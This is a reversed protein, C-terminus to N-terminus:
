ITKALTFSEMDFISITRGSVIYAFDGVYLGRSNWSWNIDSSIKARQYFGTDDAYGYVSFFNDEPFAIINRSSSILIAKHNYLAESSYSDLTLTHKETVDRPNSTDFMSLKLGQTRGTDVDAAMGLGFLRGDSYLHLYESFGPIKLESLITPNAPDSLDVAFLPDVQRFTVFYGIDGDFRASYIREDKAINEISGVINLNSDLIYLANATVAEDWVYNTFDHQPDTYVSWSSKDSTTVLRLYGNYEDMSFQSELYGPVSSSATIEAQGDSLSFRVIGTKSESTYDVVSYADETYPESETESYEFQAIYLSNSNMYVTSGGGLLNSNSIIEGASIDYSCVVSYSAYSVNPMIAICDPRVSSSTGDAYLSPVYTHPEDERPETHVSHNTLLYITGGIMRSTLYYGDQGLKHSLSPNAPDSVDYIYLYTIQENTYVAETLPTDIYSDYYYTTVVILNTGNIYLESCYENTYIYSGGFNDSNNSVEVLTTSSIIKSDTGEASAITLKNEDLIYIYKGDTKVIDGEDVGQVQVNTSSFDSSGGSDAASEATDAPAAAGPVASPAVEGGSETKAMDYVAGNRLDMVLPSVADFVDKYSVASLGSVDKIGSVPKSALNNRKAPPPNSPSCASLTGLIVALSILITSLIKTINKM